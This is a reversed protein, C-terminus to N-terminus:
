GLHVGARDELVHPSILVRRKLEPDGQCWQCNVYRAYHHEIVNSSLFLINLLLIFAGASDSEDRKSRGTPLHGGKHPFVWM